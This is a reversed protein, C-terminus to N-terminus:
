HGVKWALNPDNITEVNQWPIDRLDNIYDERVIKKLNRVEKTVPRRKPIVLKRVAYILSHDSMGAHIVESRAINKTESTFILDITAALSKTVRTPELILQELPYVSSLFQM